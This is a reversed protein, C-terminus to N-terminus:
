KAAGKEKGWGKKNLDSKGNGGFLVRRNKKEKKQHLLSPSHLDRKKTSPAPGKKKKMTALRGLEQARDGRKEKESYRNKKRKKESVSLL